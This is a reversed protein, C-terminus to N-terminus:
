LIQIDGDWAADHLTNECNNDTVDLLFPYTNVLYKCNDIKNNLCCLHLVTKRDNRTSKIDLGKDLLFKLIDIDGGWAADHLVNWGDNDTGDLLCPYTSVSYKCMDIQGNMCCQHLVTKGDNTTSKIDLEKKTRKIDLGKESLFIIQIEKENSDLRKDLLYKLLEINGGLASKHLVSKGSFDKLTLLYPFREILIKSMEFRGHLCASHLVTEGTQPLITLRQNKLIQFLKVNGGFAVMHLISGTSFLNHEENLLDPYKSIIYKATELKGNECACHLISDGKDSKLYPDCKHDTILAKLADTAGAFAVFHITSHGRKNKMKSLAPCKELIFSILELREWLCSEALISVPHNNYIPHRSEFIELLDLGSNILNVVLNKNGTQIACFCTKADPTIGEDLLITDKTQDHKGCLEKLGTVVKERKEYSTKLEKLLHKAITTKGDGPNGKIFVYKKKILVDRAKQYARTEIFDECPNDEQLLCAQVPDMNDEM